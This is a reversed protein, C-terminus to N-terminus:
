RVGAAWRRQYRALSDLGEELLILDELAIQDEEKITRPRSPTEAKSVMDQLRCFAATCPDSSSM